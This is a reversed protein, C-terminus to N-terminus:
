SVNRAFHDATIPGFVTAGRDAPGVTRRLAAFLERGTGVWERGTAPFDVLPRNALEVADVVVELTGRNADLRVLDGDNVRALPGGVAAEPTLQIAAPIKGSAGSMRGDTVLAVKHGRDMLVGLPPTLKHLEPMGNAQPGQMRVVVVVDRDLEGAKFADQFAEQTTFVRAPAEVVRDAEAVASVKIVSRGLNGSLMRMGGDPAFPDHAPRLVDLDLSRGPGDRWVLAGDILAPEQRYRDLGPGAVTHVDEHLLGADLLTGVVFQVGGAAQFHNIDAGGNPYVRAILPVISSLDSFDDWSLDIGAASAIAVLHMTHNTSGGTALLAVVGNVVAKVDVIQAIPTHEPGRSIQVARTGAYETLATRLTTGPPVFSAGPLHLGMVEVVMQNSNATGYFTCTGPSHYSQAEAELLEERTARGEAYLQRVRAKEKNSLGSAMPGAPVLIAPLHGFSLAGILMGPVIKDCVGLMLNADFMEHSLAVATSMAIVDRSFLSLEMGDRGQTIGDCMAPVGGAFQTVGGAARVADKILAPYDQFPQHASLMDNYSSVIAVNPKRLARLAAKDGGTIGAFGHALNSCAFGSRSTSDQTAAAVRDLYVRRSEASRAAIRNTVATLVPHLDSM